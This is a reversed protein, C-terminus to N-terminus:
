QLIPALESAIRAMHASGVLKDLLEAFRPALVGTVIYQRRYAALTTAHLREVESSTFARGCAGIFYEVDAPAQFLLLADIGQVLEILHDVARERDAADILSDEHAWQIEDLVGHVSTEKWHFFFVDKWLGSLQVDHEISARYHEQTFVEIHCVLALLAWTSKGFVFAGVDTAQPVFRYGPPMGEDALLEIRRFLDQHRLEEDTFRVLAQYASGYANGHTRALLPLNARLFCDVMRFMGAYTRGQVQSLLCREHATLFTLRGALSLGDPMFKQTFDLRRGRIVDRDVDWRSRNRAEVIRPYAIPSSALFPTSM